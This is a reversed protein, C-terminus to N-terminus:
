REMRYYPAHLFEVSVLEPQIGEADLRAALAQYVLLKQDIDRTESGFFVRWGHPKDNWGLGYEANYLLLTDQPAVANLALIASVLEPTLRMQPAAPLLLGPLATDTLEAQAPLSGPPATQAKVRVLPSAPNGRPMFSDGDADIWLEASDQTWAIVPQREVANITLSGPLSVRIDVSALEPFLLQLNQELEKTNVFFASDGLVSLSSSLDAVMLRELGVAQIDSIHFAPSKWIMYLCALLMIVIGGSLIRWSFQIRPLAPLRVEAGPADALLSGLAIDFRRKPQSHRPRRVAMSEMGGRAM